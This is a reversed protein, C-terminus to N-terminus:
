AFSAAGWGRGGGEEARCFPRVSVGAAEGRGVPRAVVPVSPSAAASQNAPLLPRPTRRYLLPAPCRAARAAPAPPARSNSPDGTRAGDWEGGRGGGGFFLFSCVGNGPQRRSPSRYRSCARTGRLGYFAATLAALRAARGKQGPAFSPQPHTPAAAAGPNNRPQKGNGRMVRKRPYRCIVPRARRPRANATGPLYPQTRRLDHTETRSQRRHRLKARYLRVPKQLPVDDSRGTLGGFVLLKGKFECNSHLRGDEGCGCLNREQREGELSRRRARSIVEGFGRCPRNCFVRSARTARAFSIKTRPKRAIRGDTAPVSGAAKQPEHRRCRRHM